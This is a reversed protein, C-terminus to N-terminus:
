VDAKGHRHFLQKIWSGVGSPPASAHHLATQLETDDFWVGHPSCRDITVAELVEVTMPAACVPCMRDSGAGTMPPVDWPANTMEMVMAALAADEVFCGDCTACAWRDGVFELKTEKCVPCGLTKDKHASIFLTHVRPRDSRWNGIALGGTVAGSGFAQTISGLTGQMGGGATAGGPVGAFGNGSGGTGRGAVSRSARAFAATMADRPIWIGDRDCRKLEGKLKLSGIALHCSTMEQTCKPCAKGTPKEDSISIAGNKGDIEHISAAFDDEAILMGECEDCVLRNSFERLPSSECSPCMFGSTRYVDTM